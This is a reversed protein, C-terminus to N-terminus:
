LRILNFLELPHIKGAYQNPVWEKDDKTFWTVYSLILHIRDRKTSESKFIRHLISQDFAYVMGVELNIPQYNDLQFKYEISTDLPVIVRLVEHPKEDHHWLFTENQKGGDASGIMKTIKCRVMPFFELDKLLRPKIPTDFLMTDQYHKNNYGGGCVQKSFPLIDCETSYHLGTGQYWPQEHWSTKESYKYYDLFRSIIHKNELPKCAFPACTRKVATLKHKKKLSQFITVPNGTNEKQDVAQHEVVGIDQLKQTKLQKAVIDQPLARADLQAAKEFVCIVVQDKKHVEM